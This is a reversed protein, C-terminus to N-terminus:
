ISILAVPLNNYYRVQDRRIFSLSQKDEGKALTVEPTNYNYEPQKSKM